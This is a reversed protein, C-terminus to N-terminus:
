VRQYAILLSGHRTLLNTMRPYSLTPKLVHSVKHRTDYSVSPSHPTLDIINSSTCEISNLGDVSLVCGRAVLLKVLTESTPNTSTETSQSASKPLPMENGVQVKMGKGEEEKNDSGSSPNSESSARTQGIAKTTAENLAALYEKAASAECELITTSVAIPVIFPYLITFFSSCRLPTILTIYSTTTNCTSLLVLSSSTPFEFSVFPLSVVLLCIETPFAGKCGGQLANLMGREATCRAGSNVDDLARAALDRMAEDSSFAFSLFVFYYFLIGYFLGWLCIPSITTLGFVTLQIFRDNFKGMEAYLLLLGKVLLM